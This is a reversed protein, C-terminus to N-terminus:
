FLISLDCIHKVIKYFVFVNITIDQPYLWVLEFFELYKNKVFLKVCHYIEHVTSIITSM